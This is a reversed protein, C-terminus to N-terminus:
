RGFRKKGKNMSGVVREQQQSSATRSAVRRMLSPPAPQQLLHEYCEAIVMDRYLESMHQPIPIVFDDQQLFVNEQTYYVRSKSSHLTDEYDSHFADFVIHKGDFSTCYQPYRNNFVVFKGGNFDEVIQTNATTPSVKDVQKLFESPALYHVKQYNLSRTYDSNNYFIESDQIRQINDPIVLYNPRSLDVLSDLTGVKSTFQWNRFKQTLSYYVEEAIQAVQQSVDTEFISNVYFDSTRNLYSQVVGLLTLQM